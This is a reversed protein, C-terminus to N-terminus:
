FWSDNWSFGWPTVTPKPFFQKASGKNNRAILMLYTHCWHYFLNQHIHLVVAFDFNISHLHLSSLFQWPMLHRFAHRSIKIQKKSHHNSVSWYSCLATLKQLSEEREIQCINAAFSTSISKIQNENKLFFKMCKMENWDAVCIKFYPMAFSLKVACFFFGM